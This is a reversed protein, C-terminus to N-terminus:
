QALWYNVFHVGNACESQAIENTHHIPIHEVGGLHIDFTPGLHHKSMASCEIHWGPFGRGNEVLHRLLLHNGHKFHTKMHEQRSFGFAFDHANHKNNDGVTGHGEGAEL